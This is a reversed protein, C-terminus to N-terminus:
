GEDPLSIHLSRRITDRSLMMLGRRSRHGGSLNLVGASEMKRMNEEEVRVEKEQDRYRITGAIMGRRLHPRLNRLENVFPERM